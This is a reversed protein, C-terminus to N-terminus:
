LRTEFEARPTHMGLGVTIDRLVLTDNVLRVVICVLRITERYTGHLVEDPRYEECRSNSASYVGSRSRCDVHFRLVLRRIVGASCPVCASSSSHLICIVYMWAPARQYDRCSGIPAAITLLVTPVPLLTDWHNADTLNTLNLTFQGGEDLGVGFPLSHSAIWRRDESRASLYLAHYTPYFSDPSILFVFSLRRARTM